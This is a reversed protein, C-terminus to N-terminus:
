GLKKLAAQASEILGKTEVLKDRQQQVVDAPARGVFNENGLKAEMSKVFGQWQEIQKALRKKEAEVDIFRSVDLHVEIPGRAGAVQSSAATEPATAKPGWALATAKAMQLFYPAMPELLKATAEDCRVTFEVAERPAINQGMRLERVAGLVAQFDAFQTEITADIRSKDAVPWDAICVSKAPSGASTLGRDPAVQGLLQWVEETLFPVIPHLLRLLADLVHALVRQAVGRQEPVGFRAKTMEVYYDCFDNWAFAYLLRAADAFRYAEIAETVEGTVTALRSLLWRDELTFDKETLKLKAGVTQYDSLNMLSFRSANWLKNCFRRGLEFRESVVAGRPLAKDEATGHSEAWQTRFPKGCKDCDIRVLTRNKKTQQILHQCHPCEFEVPMRVDQTETALYALGFRLADAGFKEVVDLPDVGNGKSKSMTEGYGDLIKPHIYVSSFPVEGMNYLGTLVMRAVWLTIIDRSTVLATTPYFAKLEPTEDPWGLTSHPWLASSFWTDLVDTEQKFWKSSELLNILEQNQESRVCVYYVSESGQVVKIAADDSNVFAEIKKLEEGAESFYKAKRDDAEKPDKIEVLARVQSMDLSWVPIRHGWWLQRGVPWDRKESLWDLYTKAYREPVIKVRGDIVADMASQALGPETTEIIRTAKGEEQVRKHRVHEGMMVFWQDALFPEIPTKSRDSFPMEIERDECDTEPNFFGKAELDHLVQTRAQKMSMGRYESPVSDNLTGDPNMINRIEIMHSRQWVGYDNEDHAPTIKVCGSGLEPKAWEDAILPIQRGTLPLELMVGRKAMDRLTELHPLMRARRELLLTAEEELAGKEKAPAALMRERLEAGVKDFAAAPDPHVAVATDGLMTEPRTTAITVFEPEGKKWKADKVVPYKFHWFHGKVPEKFVEDDSVATQLYTDWNVLRKGRYIKGDKFLNFFTERVARACTEDLTFRLREWDCSCGIQKLQGIIRKEYQAKWEWIKEILGERGLDHRSLKQEELLRREVVAQTAIGAHDTGPMWLANFGQMRKMRILIDQLTNNLAHGLHLAGTVNPPPIVITYPPKVKGAADKAGPEAHFYGREEWVKYWRRQAGEHDYQSPLEGAASLFDDSM